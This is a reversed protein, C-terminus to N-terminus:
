FVGKSNNELFKLINYQYRTRKLLGEILAGEEEAWAIPVSKRDAKEMYGIVKWSEIAYVKQDQRFEIVVYARARPMDTKEDMEYLSKININGFPLSRGKVSKLELLYLIRDDFLLIDCINSATFRFQDSKESGRPNDRFKYKFCWNPISKM